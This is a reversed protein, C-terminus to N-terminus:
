INKRAAEGQSGRHERRGHDELKERTDFDAGCVPCAYPKKDAM